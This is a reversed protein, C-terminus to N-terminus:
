SNIERALNIITCGAHRIVARVAPRFTPRVPSKRMRRSFDFAGNGQGVAVISCNTVNAELLGSFKLGRWKSAPSAFVVRAKRDKELPVVPLDM